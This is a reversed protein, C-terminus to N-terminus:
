EAYLVGEVRWNISSEEMTAFVGTVRMGPLDLWSITKSPRIQSLYSFKVKKWSPSQPQIPPQGLIAPQVMPQVVDSDAQISLAVEIQQAKSFLSQVAVEQPLLQDDTKKVLGDVGGSATAVEGDNSLTANPVISVIAAFSSKPQRTWSTQFSAAENKIFCKMDAFLWAAPALSYRSLAEECASAAFLPSAEEMWPPAVPLSSLRAMEAAEAAQREAKEKAIKAAYLKQGIEGAAMIVLIVLVAPAYRRIEQKLNVRLATVYASKPYNTKKGKKVVPFFSDFSREVAGPFGWFSPCVVQKWDASGFHSHLAVRVEDESAIMDGDALIYGDRRAFYIWRGTGDGIPLAILCDENNGESNLRSHIFAATSVLGPAAGDKTSCIGAQSQDGVLVVALDYSLQDASERTLKKAEKASSTSLPQWFLGSVFDQNDPRTFTTVVKAM